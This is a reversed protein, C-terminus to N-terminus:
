IDQELSVALQLLEGPDDTDKNFKLSQSVPAARRTEELFCSPVYSATENDDYNIIKRGTYTSNDAIGYPNIMVLQVMLAEPIVRAAREIRKLFWM